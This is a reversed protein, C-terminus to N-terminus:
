VSNSNSIQSEHKEKYASLIEKTIRSEIRNKGYYFSTKWNSEVADQMSHYKEATLSNCIDILEDVSNYTIIGKTDFYKGINPCGWYLPVTKTWFCEMIKETIYNDEQSNEPCVSFMSNFLHMKEQGRVANPLDPLLRSIDVPNYTSSWFKKPVTIENQRDWLERRHKYGPMNFSNTSTCLFSVTLEKSSPLLPYVYNSAFLLFKSNKCKNLIEPTKTIILDFNNQYQIVDQIPQCAPQPETSNIFVRFVNGRDGLNNYFRNVHIECPFPLTNIKLWEAGLINAPYNSM